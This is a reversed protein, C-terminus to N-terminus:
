NDKEIKVKLKVSIDSSLNINVEFDGLTKIPSKLDIQNKDIEINKEKLKDVIKKATVSEFLEDKDGVKLKINLEVGEIEKAVERTKDIEEAQRKVAEKKIREIKSLEKNTAMKALNKPFLFNRAYGDSVSKVEYKKGVSKIDELLIVKM